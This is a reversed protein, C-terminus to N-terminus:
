DILTRYVDIWYIDGQPSDIWAFAGAIAEPLSVAYMSLRKEGTNEIARTRYPEPLEELWEKITKM